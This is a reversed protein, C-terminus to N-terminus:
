GIGHLWLALPNKHNDKEPVYARYFFKVNNSGTHQDM